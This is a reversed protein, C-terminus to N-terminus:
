EQQNAIEQKLFSGVDYGGTKKFVEAVIKGVLEAADEYDAAIGIIMPDLQKFYPQNWSGASYIDLLNKQNSALTLVYYGSTKEARVAQLIKFRNVKAKDGLYLREYLRM